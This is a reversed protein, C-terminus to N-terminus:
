PGCQLTCPTIPAPLLLPPQLATMVAWSHQAGHHCCPLRWEGVDAAAASTSAVEVGAPRPIDPRDLHQQQQRRREAGAPEAAGRVFAPRPRQQLQRPVFEGKRPRPPPYEDRRDRWREERRYRERSASRSRGRRERSRSRRREGRSGGRGQGRDRGADTYDPSGRGRSGADLPDRGDVYEPSGRGGRGGDEREELRDDRRRDHGRNDHWGPGPSRRRERGQARGSGGSRGPPSRTRGRDSM